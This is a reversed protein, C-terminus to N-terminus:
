RLDYRLFSAYAGALFLIGYFLLLAMDPWVGPLVDRLASTRYPLKPASTEREFSFGGTSVNEFRLFTSKKSIENELFKVFSARNEKLRDYEALGTGAIETVGHLFCSVPSLRSLNKALRTQGDRQTGYFIDLKAMEADIRELYSSQIEDQKKQYDDILPNKERKAKFFADMTMDKIGPMTKRLNDIESEAEKELQARVQGKELDV